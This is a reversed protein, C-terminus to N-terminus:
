RGGAYHDNRWGTPLFLLPNRAHNDKRVEFHLNTGSARGSRGVTAILQGQRVRQGEEVHHRENHAYVTAYGREHRVIIVNGYGPLSASYAVEGSAAARVPVGAPVSIDIGDHFRNGRPGFGSTVTGGPVPWMMKPADRPRAEGTDRLPPLLTAVAPVGKGRPIILRQGVEIRSPDRLRNARAIEQYPVGYAQGIRSLTDGARVVHFTQRAGCAAAVAALAAVLSWTRRHAVADM